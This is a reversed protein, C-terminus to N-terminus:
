LASLASTEVGFIFSDSILFSVLLRAHSDLKTDHILKV